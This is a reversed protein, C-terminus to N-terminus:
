RPRCAARLRELHASHPHDQVFRELDRAGAVLEGRGCTILVRAARREEVLVGEPFRRAHERVAQEAREWDRDRLAAQMRRVVRVEQALGHSIRSEGAEAEPGRGDASPAAVRGGRAGAKREAKGPRDGGLGPNRGPKSAAPAPRESATQGGSSGMQGVRPGSSPDAGPRVAEARGSGARPREPNSRAADISGSAEAEEPAGRSREDTLRARASTEPPKPTPAAQRGSPDAEATEREAPGTAPGLGGLGLAVLLGAAGAGAGLWPGWRVSRGAASGHAGGGGMPKPPLAEASRPEGAAPEGAADLEPALRAWLADAKGPPPREARAAQELVARARPSLTV